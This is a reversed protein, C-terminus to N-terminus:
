RQVAQLAFRCGSALTDVSIPKIYYCTAGLSMLEFAESRQSDDLLCIWQPSVTSEVLSEIVRISSETATDLDLIVLECAALLSEVEAESLRNRFLVENPRDQWARRLGSSFWPSGEVVLV